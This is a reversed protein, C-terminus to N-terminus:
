VAIASAPQAEQLREFFMGTAEGAAMWLRKALACDEILAIARSRTSCAEAKALLRSTLKGVDLLSVLVCTRDDPQRSSHLAARVLAELDRFMVTSRTPRADLSTLGMQIGEELSLLGGTVLRTLIVDRPVPPVNHLTRVWCSLRRPEVGAVARLTGDLIPDHTRSHDLIRVDDGALCLRGRLLLEALAAANMLPIPCPGAITGQAEDLSIAMIQERLTYRRIEM